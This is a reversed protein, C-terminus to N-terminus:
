TRQGNLFRTTTVKCQTTHAGQTNSFYGRILHTTQVCRRRNCVNGKRHGDGTNHLLHKTARGGPDRETKVAWAKPAMDVSLKYVCMDNLGGTNVEPEYMTDPGTNLARSRKSIIECTTEGEQRSDDGEELM